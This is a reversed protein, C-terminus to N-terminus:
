IARESRGNQRTMMVQAPDLISGDLGALAKPVKLKFIPLIETEADDLEDDFIANILRRTNVLSIRKGQGNWGTNILYAKAGAQNMRENLVKAYVTPHLTLFAAGFCASFTPQHETM